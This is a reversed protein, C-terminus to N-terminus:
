SQIADSSSNPPAIVGFGKSKEIIKKHFPGGPLIYLNRTVGEQTFPHVILQHTAIYHNIVENFEPTNLYRHFFKKLHIETAAHDDTRKLFDIVQAGVGALENRGIGSTLRVIDEELSDLMFLGAALHDETMTMTFPQECMCLATAVKLLQIHKTEHFQMLIPDERNIRGPSHYWNKWWKIANADRTIPGYCQEAAKLHQVIRAMTDAAGKPHVPDDISKDKKSYVIILRRGLGGTFLDIKLNSMIWEPVTCALVNLCPNLIRQNSAVDNKFGTSFSNRSYIGVLMGIMKTAEVSVFNSLEDVIAYFPRFSHIAGKLGFRGEEDKFYKECEPSGMKKLLDERSQISESVLYDKFNNVFINEAEGMASSKGSGATGVLCVYLNPYITFYDGHKVWVRRGLVASLLSIGSWTVFNDPCEHGSNYYIFDNLLGM